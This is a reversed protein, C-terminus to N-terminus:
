ELGSIIADLAAANTAQMPINYVSGQVPTVDLLGYYLQGGVVSIIVVNMPVNALHTEHITNNSISGWGTEAMPWVGNENKFVAFATTNSNDLGSLGTLNFDIDFYTVNSIFGDVNTWGLSDLFLEYTDDTSNFTFGSMSFTSDVPNGWGVNASDLLVNEEAFFLFMGPDQAQAPIVVNVVQGNAVRLKQGNQKFELKFEGGSNLVAGNYSRPFIRSFMIDSNSFVEKFEATVSGTVPNGAQDILANAPITIVSGKNATFSGGNEALFSFSQTSVNKTDLYSQLSAYYEVNPEEPDPTPNDKKCSVLSIAVLASAFVIYKKMNKLIFHISEIGNSVSQDSFAAHLKRKESFELIKSM